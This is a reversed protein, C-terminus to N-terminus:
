SPSDLFPAGWKNEKWSGQTFFLQIYETGFKQVIQAVSKPFLTFHQLSTNKPNFQITSTFQLNTFINGDALPRVLLEESFTESQSSEGCQVFFIFCFVFLLSSLYNLRMM